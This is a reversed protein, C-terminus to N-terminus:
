IFENGVYPLFRQFAEAYKISSNCALRKAHHGRYEARNTYNFSLYAQSGVVSMAKQKLEMVDTIDIYVNPIFNNIEAQDPEFMFINTTTVAKKEPFVGYVQALRLAAYVAHNTNTHDANMLDTTHTLIFDPQFDKIIGALVTVQDAGLTLLHDNWDFIEIDAGLISAAELAEMRRTIKVAEETTDKNTKWTSDSEGRVGLTLDIIKVQDGNQTYKAITGACRWVFDVAHASIVLVKKM